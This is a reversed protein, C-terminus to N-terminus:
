WFSLITKEVFAALIFFYGDAFSHVKGLRMGYIFLELNFLSGFTLVIFGKYPFMLAFREAQPNSLQKKFIVSFGCPVFNSITFQTM